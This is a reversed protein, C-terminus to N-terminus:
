LKSIKSIEFIELFEVNHFIQFNFFTLGLALRGWFLLIFLMEVWGFVMGSRPQYFSNPVTPPIMLNTKDCANEHYPGFRQQSIKANVM